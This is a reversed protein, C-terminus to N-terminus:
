ELVEVGDGVRITGEEVVRAYIGATHKTERVLTRMVRHDQPVDDVPQTVMVCRPCGTVVEILATGVRLRRGIWGFEPYGEREDAEVFLNPRFRREDWNSEPALRALTKLTTRTLLHLPLADFFNGQRLSRLREPPFENMDPMPEDPLIGLLGRISDPPEGASTVRPAAESGAPGLARLTVPRGLLDSLRRAADATDTLVASGDPLTIEVPPSGAGSVPESPYRARCARLSPIRKAGTIGQRSEDYVAWGRDGPIGRRTLAAAGLREGGMSKVPYRWLQSVTGIRMRGGYANRAAGTLSVVWRGATPWGVVCLAGGILACAAPLLADGGVM